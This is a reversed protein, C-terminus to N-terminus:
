DDLQQLEAKLQEIKLGMSRQLADREQGELKELLGNFMDLVENVADKACQAEENFYVTEKSDMASEIEERAEAFKFNIEDVIKNKDFEASFSRCFLISSNPRNFVPLNSTPKIFLPLKSSSSSSFSHTTLLKPLFSSTPRPYHHFPYRLIFKSVSLSSRQHM